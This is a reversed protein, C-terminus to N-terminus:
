GIEESPVLKKIQKDETITYGLLFLGIISGILIAFFLWSIIKKTAKKM